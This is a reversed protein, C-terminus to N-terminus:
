KTGSDLKTLLDKFSDPIPEDVVSDYLQKLGTAWEPGGKMQDQSKGKKPKGKTKESTMRQRSAGQFSGRTFGHSQKAVPRM